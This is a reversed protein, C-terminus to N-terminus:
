PAFVGCDIAQAIARGGEANPHTKDKGVYTAVPLDPDEPSAFASSVDFSYDFAGCDEYWENLQVRLANKEPASDMSLGTPVLNLGVLTIGRARIMAALAATGDAIEQASARENGRAAITGPQLYDNTGLCFVVHSIGEFAFVDDHVRELAKIGFFGRLPFRKSTDRLIRSGNIAKNIVSYRGPYLSRIKEEFCNSWFGQQTLSDGFCVISSAGDGGQLEVAQFLPIPSHLTMGLLKGAVAIVYDRPRKEHRMVPEGAHDGKACLLLANNLLNGSQLRGKEIFLNVCLYAGAPVAFETEDSIATEGPPLTLGQSGGFAIPRMGGPASIAGDKGCLAISARGVVVASGSYRNCLRIRVRKGSIASHLVLRLTRKGSFFSMLSLSAHSMGWTEVWNERKEM